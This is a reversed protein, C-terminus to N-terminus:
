GGEFMKQRRRLFEWAGEQPEEEEHADPANINGLVRVGQKVSYFMQYVLELLISTVVINVEDEKKVSGIGSKVWM